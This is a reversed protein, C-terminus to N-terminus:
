PVVVVRTNIPAWSWVFQADATSQRVCGGSLPQGLQALTQVPKGFKTPIEHFGINDGLPGKTFRVMYRFKIWPSTLSRTYMSRSFVRYSGVGPMTKRGSVLWTRRLTGNAEVAWARQKSLSM